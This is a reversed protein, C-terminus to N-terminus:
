KTTPRVVSTKQTTQTSSSKTKKEKLVSPDAAIDQQLADHKDLSERQVHLESLPDDKQDPIVRVKLGVLNDPHDVMVVMFPVEKDPSVTSLKPKYKKAYAQRVAIDDLMSFVDEPSFVVGVPVSLSSVPKNNRLLQGRVTVNDKSTTGDNHIKGWLVVLRSGEKNKYSTSAMDLVQLDGKASFAFSDGTFAEVYTSWKSLDPKGGHRFAVFAFFLVMLLVVGFIVKFLVSGGAQTLDESPKTLMPPPGPPRQAAAPSQVQQESTGITKTPPPAPPLDEGQVQGDEGLSLGIDLQPQEGSFSDTSELAAFPDHGVSPDMGESSPTTQQGDQGPMSAPLSDFLQDSDEKPIPPPQTPSQQELGAFPDGLDSFLDGSSDTASNKDGPEQESVAQQQLSAKESSLSAFPDNFIAEESAVPEQAKSSDLDENSGPALDIDSFPDDMATPLSSESPPQSSLIPEAVPPQVAVPEPASAPVNVDIGAFPDDTPLDNTTINPTNTSPTDSKKIQEPAPFSSSEGPPALQDVASDLDSFLDESLAPRSSDLDKPTVARSDADMIPFDSDLDISSVVDAPLEKAPEIVGFAEQPPSPIKETPSEDLSPFSDM